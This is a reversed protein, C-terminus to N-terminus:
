VEETAGDLDPIIEPLKDMNRKGHRRERRIDSLCVQTLLDELVTKMVLGRRVCWAHFLDRKDRSFQHITWSVTRKAPKPKPLDM